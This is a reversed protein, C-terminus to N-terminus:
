LGSISGTFTRTSNPPVDETCPNPRNPLLEFFLESSKKKKKKMSIDNVMLSIDRPGSHTIVYGIPRQNSAPDAATVTSEIERDQLSARVNDPLARDTYPGWIFNAFNVPFFSPQHRSDAQRRLQSKGKITM